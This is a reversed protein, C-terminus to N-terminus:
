KVESNLKTNEAKNDEFESLSEHFRTKHLESEKAELESITNLLEDERNKLEINRDCFDQYIRHLTNAFM